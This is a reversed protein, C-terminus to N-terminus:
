LSAPSCIEDICARMKRELREALVWITRAYNEVDQTTPKRERDGHAIANRCGVVDTLFNEISVTSIEEEDGPVDLDGACVSRPDGMHAFLDDIVHAKANTVLRSLRDSKLTGAPPKARDNWLSAQVDLKRLLAKRQAEDQSSVVEQLAPLTHLERLKIPLLRSEIAGTSISDVFERALGQLYGEFHSVLLVVAARNLANVQGPTASEGQLHILLRCEDIGADLESLSDTRAPM